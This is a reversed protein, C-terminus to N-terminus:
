FPAPRRTSTLASHLHRPHGLSSARHLARGRVPYCPGESIITHFRFNPAPRHLRGRFSRRIAYQVENTLRTTVPHTNQSIDGFSEEMPAEAAGATGRAAPARGRLDTFILDAQLSLVEM